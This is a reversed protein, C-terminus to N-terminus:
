PVVQWTVSRTFCADSDSNCLACVGYIFSVQNATGSAEATTAEAAEHRTMPKNTHGTNLPGVTAGFRTVGKMPGFSTSAKMIKSPWSSNTADWIRCTGDYSSSLLAHPIVKNFDVYTVPGEHGLLVSLPHGLDDKQMCWPLLDRAKPMALCTHMVGYLDVCLKTHDM